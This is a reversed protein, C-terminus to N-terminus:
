TSAFRPRVAFRGDTSSVIIGTSRFHFQYDGPGTTTFDYRYQGQSVRELPFSSLTTSKEVTVAGVPPQVIVTCDSDTLVGATTRLTFALRVRDGVSKAATTYVTM